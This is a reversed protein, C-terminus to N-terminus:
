YCDMLIQENNEFKHLPQKLKEITIQDLMELVRNQMAISGCIMIVAENKLANAIFVSHEKIIDQVYIKNDQEQSYAVNVSNLAETELAKEIYNQYIELSQKTRGGWFLHTKVNLHNQNIMGLFPAIGTGNAIMIVEKTYTPFHFDLNRKVKAKITESTQLQSLWSSCIGFEYKKISLIIDGDIKGISYLREVGDEKPYFGILDGSQFKMKKHPKLQIVFTEDRNLETRRIVKFDKLTKLKVNSKPPEIILQLQNVENWQNVWTKFAEFSQNNIKFIPLSRKFNYQKELFDDVEVAYKCYEPYMLSGFGVVSFDITQEQKVSRLLKKFQKASTPAEGEGYTSTFVIIQKANKYNSYQNLTSVYVSKGAKLLANYFQHAFKNTHGTETGILIVYEAANKNFKNKLKSREGLRKLSMAFGSYMFFLIAFCSLLLVISWIITGQGTHLIVSWYSLKSVMPTKAKSLVDGTYQNVYFEGSKTKLIFYDEEDESFPFELSILHDLNTTNFIEFDNVAQKKSTNHELAEHKLQSSPLLNFKELSLYVGTLTIIVIPILFWRGLVVHYYQLINEKVVKSFFKKIGGQRKLILQIGTVSILFLLFSFLGVLFRGTSKLFLSRHLNTAFEFIPAKKEIDGIKKGTKPDLYFTESDGELSFVSAKVFNNSDVELSVVEDYENQLVTLTEAVNVTGTNSVAYPKLQNSIPEFALIIGTLTALLIFVFSSIALAFHSYRWISITM